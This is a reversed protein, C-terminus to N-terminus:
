DFYVGLEVKSAYQHHEVVKWGLSAHVALQRRLHQPELFHDTETYQCRRKLVCRGAAFINAVNHDNVSVATVPGPLGSGVAAWSSNSFYHKAVNSTTGDQLQISGAVVLVDDSGAQSGFLPLRSEKRIRRTVM